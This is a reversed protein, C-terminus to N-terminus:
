KRSFCVRYRWNHENHKLIENVLFRINKRIPLTEHNSKGAGLITNGFISSFQGHPICVLSIQSIDNELTYDMVFFYTLNPVEGYLRHNIYHSLNADWSKTGQMLTQNSDYTTENKEAVIKNQTYDSNPIYTNKKDSWVEECRTKADIHIIADGCEYCSDASIPTVCVPWGLQRTIISEVINELKSDYINSKASPTSSSTFNKYSGIQNLIEGLHAEIIDAIYYFYKKELNMLDLNSLM